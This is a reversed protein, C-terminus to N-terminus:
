DRAKVERTQNGFEDVYWASVRMEIKPVIQQYEAHRQRRLRAQQQLKILSDSDYDMADGTLYVSPHEPGITAGFPCWGTAIPAIFRCHDHFPVGLANNDRAQLGFRSSPQPAEPRAV